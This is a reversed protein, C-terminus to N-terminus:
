FRSQRNEGGDMKTERAALTSPCASATSPPAPHSAKGIAFAVDFNDDADFFTTRRSTNGRVLAQDHLTAAFAVSAYMGFAGAM